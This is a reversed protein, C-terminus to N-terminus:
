PTDRNIEECALVFLREAEGRGFHHEIYLYMNASHKVYHALRMHLGNHKKLSREIKEYILILQMPIQHNQPFEKVLKDIILNTVKHLLNFGYLPKAWVHYKIINLNTLYFGSRHTTRKNSM